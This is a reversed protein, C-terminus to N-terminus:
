PCPLNFATLVSSIDAFNVLGDNNADGQPGTSAWATLVSSIDAFNVNRDRNADGQCHTVTVTFSQTSPSASSIGVSNQARVRWFYFGGNVLRGSPVPYSTGTVTADVAPQFFALNDAVEVRYNDAFFATSWTLTPTTTLVSGGDSPFVMSFGSPPVAATSFSRPGNIALTQGSPNIARVQWHYQTLPNLPTGTWSFNTSGINSQDLAPSGFLQDDDVILRYTDVDNSATWSFSPSPSVGVEGSSPSSLSFAGPPLAPTQFSTSSPTSLTNGLFNVARARWHYTVGGTLVGAPVQYQANTLPTQFIEPSAFSPDNDITLEYYQAQDSADWILLPTRNAITTGGIPSVLAFGAPPQTILTRWAAIVDANLNIALANYASNPQGDAIGMPFGGFSVNPNSFIQVRTGPAYAMVTRWQNNPTRYGYAFSHSAGGANDRDHACGMNHGFEHALTQNSFCTRSTVTFASSEFSQDVFTMLYGIGCAGGAAANTVLGVLDAGLQDRLTHVEDLVGDNKGRLWGLDVGLDGAESYNAELVGVSRIRLDILSNQYAVNADAVATNIAAEIQAVGGAGTRAAPTYFLLVDSFVFQAPGREAREVHEPEVVGRRAPTVGPQGAPAGVAHRASTACTPQQEADLRRVEVLPRGEADRPDDGPAPVIEFLGHRPSFIKGAVANEVRVLIVYGGEDGELGGFWVPTSGLGLDRSETRAIVNVDGPLALSVRGAPAQDELGLAPAFIVRDEIAGQARLTIWRDDPGSASRFAPADLLSLGSAPTPLPSPQDQPGGRASASLILAAGLGFGLRGATGLLSRM